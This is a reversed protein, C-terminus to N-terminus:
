HLKGNQKIVQKALIDETKVTDSLYEKLSKHITYEFYKGKFEVIAGAIIQKEVKFNLLIPRKLRLAIWDYIKQTTTQKPRFALTINIIPVAKISEIIEELYHQIEISNKEDIQSEKIGNKISLVLDSSFIDILKDKFNSRSSFLSESLISIQSLFHDAETKTHLQSLIDGIWPKIPTLEM